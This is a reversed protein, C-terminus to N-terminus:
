ARPAPAAHTGAARSAGAAGVPKRCALRVTAQGHREPRELWVVRRQGPPGLADTADWALVGPAAACGHAAQGPGRQDVAVPGM